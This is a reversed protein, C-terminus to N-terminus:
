VFRNILMFIGFFLTPIDNALDETDGIEHTFAFVTALILLVALVTVINNVRKLDSLSQRKWWVVLVIIAIVALTIDM